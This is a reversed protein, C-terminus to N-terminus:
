DVVELEIKLEEEDNVIEMGRGGLVYSPRVILPYGIREAIVLAEELTSATGSEPMPIGYKKMLAKAFSKSSELAVAGQTAGFVKLGAEDFRDVIGASLPAEPGVVTMDIKESEAFEILSEIDEAGIAVCAALDAIGANGPACYIKRVKRSQAIKWVLAHERGGGGVVLIKM